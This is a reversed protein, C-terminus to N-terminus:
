EFMSVATFEILLMKGVKKFFRYIMSLVSSNDDSSMPLALKSESAM